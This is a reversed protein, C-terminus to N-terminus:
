KKWRQLIGKAGDTQGLDGYTNSFLWAGTRYRGGARRELRDDIQNLISDMVGALLGNRSLIELCADSTVAEMLEKCVGPSAGQLAAHACFIERRGDAWRSHTNMIGAAVKILKGVHGVLLVDEFGADGAADLADGIFNSCRVIPIGLQDLGNSQLFDMGYNGPTLIVSRHGEKAHQRLEVAITETLAQVSMPEVVGSTGLISIGGQIGLS